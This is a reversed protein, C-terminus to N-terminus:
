YGIVIYMKRNDASLPQQVTINEVFVRGANLKGFINYALVITHLIPLLKRYQKSPRTPFPGLLFYILIVSFMYGSYQQTEYQKLVVEAARNLTRSPFVSVQLYINM